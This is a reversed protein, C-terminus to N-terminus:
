SGSQARVRPIDRNIMRGSTNPETLFDRGNTTLTDDNGAQVAERAPAGRLVDWRGANVEGDASVPAGGVPLRLRVKEAPM